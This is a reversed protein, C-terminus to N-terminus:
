FLSSSFFNVIILALWTTLGWVALWIRSFDLSSQTFIISLLIILYSSLWSKSISGAISFFRYSKAPHKAGNLFIFIFASILLILYYLNNPISKDYFRLHISILGVLM